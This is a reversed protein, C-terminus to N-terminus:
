MLETVIQQSLPYVDFEKVHCLFDDPYAGMPSREPIGM